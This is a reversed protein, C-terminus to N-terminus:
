DTSHTSSDALRNASAYKLLRYQRNVTSTTAKTYSPGLTVASSRYNTSGPVPMTPEDRSYRNPCSSVADLKRLNARGPM